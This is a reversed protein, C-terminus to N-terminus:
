IGSFLHVFLPKHSADMLSVAHGTASADMLRLADLYRFISTCLSNQPVCGSLLCCRFVQFIFTCIIKSTHAPHSGPILTMPMPMHITDKHVTGSMAVSMHNCRLANWRGDFGANGVIKCLATTRRHLVRLFFALM